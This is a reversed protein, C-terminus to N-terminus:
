KKKNFSSLVELGLYFSVAHFAWWIYPTLYIGFIVFPPPTYRATVGLIQVLGSYSSVLYYFSIWTGFIASYIIKRIHSKGQFIFIWMISFLVANALKSIFYYNSEGVGLMHMVFDLIWFILVPVLVLLSKKLKQNM